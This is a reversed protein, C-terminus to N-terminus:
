WNMSFDVGDPEKYELRSGSISGLSEMGLSENIPKSQHLESTIANTPEGRLGLTSHTRSSYQAACSTKQISETRPMIGLRILADDMVGKLAINSTALIGLCMELFGWMDLQAVEWAIDNDFRLRQISLFKPIAACSALIGLGMLVCIIIKERRPM